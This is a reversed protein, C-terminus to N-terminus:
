QSPMEARRNRGGGGGGPGYGGGYGPGSGNGSGFGPGRREGGGEGQRWCFGRGERVGQACLGLLRKQQEPTLHSRVSVIYGVIRRDTANGAAIVAEVRSQIEESSSAPDELASALSARATALGTRLKSLDDPFGPDHGTLAARQAPPVGLWDFLPDTATTPSTSTTAPRAASRAAAFAVVGSALSILGVLLLQRTNM